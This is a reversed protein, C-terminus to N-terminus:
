THFRELLYKCAPEVFVNRQAWEYVYKMDAAKVCGPGKIRKRVPILERWAAKTEVPLANIFTALEVQAEAVPKSSKADNADPKKPM